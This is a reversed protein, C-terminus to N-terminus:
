TGKKHKLNKGGKGVGDPYAEDRMERINKIVNTKDDVKKNQEEDALLQEIFDIHAPKKQKGIKHKPLLGKRSQIAHILDLTRSVVISSKDDKFHKMIFEIENMLEFDSMHQTQKNKSKHVADYDIAM